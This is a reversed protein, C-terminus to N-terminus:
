VPGSGVGVSLVRAAASRAAPTLGEVEVEVGAEVGDADAGAAGVAPITAATGPTAIGPRAVDSGAASIFPRSDTTIFPPGCFSAATIFPSCGVTM